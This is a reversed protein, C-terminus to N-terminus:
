GGQHNHVAMRELGVGGTAVRCRNAGCDLIVTPRNRCIDPGGGEIASCLLGGINRADDGGEPLRYLYIGGELDGDGIETGQGFREWAHGATAGHIPLTVVNLDDARGRGAVHASGGVEETFMQGTDAAVRDSQPDDYFESLTGSAIVSEIILDPGSRRTMGDRPVGM